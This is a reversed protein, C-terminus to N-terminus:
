ETVTITLEMGAEQHGALNCLINYTGAALEVELTKTEGPFLLEITEDVGEIIFNHELAGDNTINFTIMGANLVESQPEVAWESVFIDMTTVKAPSGCGVTFILLFLLVGILIYKNVRHFNNNM